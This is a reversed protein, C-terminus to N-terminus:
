VVKFDMEIAGEEYLANLEKLRSGTNRVGSEEIMGVRMYEGEVDQIASLILWLQQINTEKGDSNVSVVESVKIAIVQMGDERNVYDWSPYCLFTRPSMPLQLGKLVLNSLVRGYSAPVGQIQGFLCKGRLLVAGDSIQGMPDDGKPSTTARLVTVYATIRDDRGRHFWNVPGQAAAWSWSPARWEELQKEAPKKVFWCLSHPLTKMWHGALYRGMSSPVLKALGQLGPFIDSPYTLSKTMYTEVIREWKDRTEGVSHFESMKAAQNMDVGFIDNKHHAEECECVFSARCEWWLEEEMFHVIRRSLMREQFVWGREHLPAELEPLKEHCHIEYTEHDSTAFTKTRSVYQAKPTVFCGQHPNTAWTASLTISANTYIQSMKSGEHRWDAISNQIICLSDIWLYRFGLAYTFQIADQFTKPLEEWPLDVTYQELNQTTTQM